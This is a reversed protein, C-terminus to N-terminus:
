VAMALIDGTKVPSNAAGTVLLNVVSKKFGVGLSIPSVTTPTVIADFGDTLFKIMALCGELQFAFVLPQNTILAMEIRLSRGIEFGQGCVAACAMLFVIRMFALKSFFAAGAMFGGTPFGGTKVMIKRSELQIAFVGLHLTISAVFILDKLACGFIAIGAVLLIIGVVALETLIAARTVLGTAPFGGAKIVIERGEFQGARMDAHGAFFTVDIIDKLARRLFTGATVVIRSKVLPKELTLGTRDAM